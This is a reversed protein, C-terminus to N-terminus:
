QGSNRHDAPRDFLGFRSRRGDEGRTGVSAFPPLHHSDTQPSDFALSPRKQLLGPVIALRGVEPRCLGHACVAECVEVGHAQRLHRHPLGVALAPADEDAGVAGLANADLPYRVVVLLEQGEALARLSSADLEVVKALRGARQAVNM